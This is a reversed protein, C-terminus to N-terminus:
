KLNQQNKFKREQTIYVFKVKKSISRKIGLQTLFIVETIDYNENVAKRM